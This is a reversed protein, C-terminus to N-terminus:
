TDSVVPLTHVDDDYENTPTRKWNTLEDDIQHTWPCHLNRENYQGGDLAEERPWRQNPDYKSLIENHIARRSLILNIVCFRPIQLM